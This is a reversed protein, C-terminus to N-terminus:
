ELNPGWWCLKDLPLKKTTETMRKATARNSPGQVYELAEKGRFPVLRMLLPIVDVLRAEGKKDSFQVAM